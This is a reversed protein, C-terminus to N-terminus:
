FLGPPIEARLKALVTSANADGDCKGDKILGRKIEQLKRWQTVVTANTRIDKGAADTQDPM